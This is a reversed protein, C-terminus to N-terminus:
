MTAFPTVISYRSFLPVVNILNVNPLLSEAHYIQYHVIKNYYHTFQMMILHNLSAYDGLSPPSM